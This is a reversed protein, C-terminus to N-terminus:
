RPVVESRMNSALLPGGGNERMKCDKYSHGPKGCKYCKGQEACNQNYQSSYRPQNKQVSSNYGTPQFNNCKFNNIVKTLENLQNKIETIEGKLEMNNKNSYEPPGLQNIAHVSNSSRRNDDTLMRYKEYYECVDDITTPDKDKIYFIVDKNAISNILHKVAFKERMRNDLDAYALKTLRSVEQALERIAQNKNLKLQTLSFEHAESCEVPGFRKKLMAKVENYTVAEINEIEHLIGRAKGDLAHLLANTKESVSWQNMRGTIEFQILYEDIDQGGSYRSVSWEKHRNVKVEATDSGNPSVDCRARNRKNPM